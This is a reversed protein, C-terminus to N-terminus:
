QIGSLENKKTLYERVLGSRVIDETHFEVFRFSDLEKLINYFDKFGNKALDAQAIDGCFFIRCNEGVRTIITDLEHYSMNQCEDVILITDDLTIGRLFSTNIFSVVKHTKLIDYADARNFLESAIARYPLEYIKCKEEETGPLFGIDRTPVASRIYMLKSYKGELVDKYASHSSLFTKGTGASGCLVFNKDSQMIYSQKDNVPYVPTLELHLKSITSNSRRKYGKKNSM